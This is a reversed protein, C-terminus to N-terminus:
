GGTANKKVEVNDKGCVLRLHNTSESITLLARLMFEFNELLINTMDIHRARSFHQCFSLWPSFSGRVVVLIDRDSDSYRVARTQASNLYSNWEVGWLHGTAVMINEGIDELILPVKFRKYTLILDLKAITKKLLTVMENLGREIPKERGDCGKPGSAWKFVSRAKIGHDVYEEYKATFDVIDRDRDRDGDVDPGTLDIIDGKGDVDPGTLDVIDGKGDVGGTTKPDQDSNGGTTMPDQVSDGDNFNNPDDDSGDFLSDKDSDKEEDVGGTTKPEDFLSDFDEDNDKEEDVGGVAESDQSNPPNNRLIDGLGDKIWDMEETPSGENLFEEFTKELEEGTFGPPDSGAAWVTSLVLFIHLGFVSCLFGSKMKLSKM